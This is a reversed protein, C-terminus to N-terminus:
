APRLRQRRHDPPCRGSRRQAHLQDQLPMQERRGEVGGSDYQDPLHQFFRHHATQCIGGRQPSHIIFDVGSMKPLMLDLVIVDPQFTRMSKLGSEGDLAMEAQYGEVALKNRYINAIIQDDEIILIKKM